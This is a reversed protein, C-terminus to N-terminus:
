HRGTGAPELATRNRWAAIVVPHTPTAPVWVSLQTFSPRNYVRRTSLSMRQSKTPRPCANPPRGCAACCCSPSVKSGLPIASGTNAEFASVEPGVCGVFDQEGQGEGSHRRVREGPLDCQQDGDHHQDHHDEVPLVDM